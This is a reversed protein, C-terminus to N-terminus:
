SPTTVQGGTASASPRGAVGSASTSLQGTGGGGRDRGRDAAIEVVQGDLAAQGRVRQLGVLTVQLPVRSSERLTAPDLNLQHRGLIDGVVQGPQTLAVRVM